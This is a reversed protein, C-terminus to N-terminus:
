RTTSGSLGIGSSRKNVNSIHPSSLPLRSLTEIINPTAEVRVCSASPVFAPTARTRRKSFSRSSPQPEPKSEDPPEHTAMTGTGSGIWVGPIGYFLYYSAIFLLLVGLLPLFCAFSHFCLTLHLEGPDISERRPSAKSNWSLITATEHGELVLV